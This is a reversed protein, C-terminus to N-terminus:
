RGREPPWWGQSIIVQCTHFSDPSGRLWTIPVPTQSSVVRKRRTSALCEINAGLADISKNEAFMAIRLKRDPRMRRNVTGRNGINVQFMGALLQIALLDRLLNAGKAKFNVGPFAAGLVADGAGDGLDTAINEGAAVTCQSNRANKVAFVTHIIDRNAYRRYQRLAADLLNNFQLQGVIFRRLEAARNLHNFGIDGTEALSAERGNIGAKRPCGARM